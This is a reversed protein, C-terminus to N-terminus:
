LRPSTAEPAAVVVDGQLSATWSVVVVGRLCGEAPTDRGEEDREGVLRPHQHNLNPAFGHVEKRYARTDRAPFSLTVIELTSSHDSPHERGRKKEGPSLYLGSPAAYWSQKAKKPGSDSQSLSLSLPTIDPLHPACVRCHDSSSSTSSFRRSARSKRADSRGATKTHEIGRPGESWTARNKKNTTRTKKTDAFPLKRPGSAAERQTLLVTGLPGRRASPTHARYLDRLYFFFFIARLHKKRKIKKQTKSHTTQICTTRTERM